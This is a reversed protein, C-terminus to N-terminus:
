SQRTALGALERLQNVAYPAFLTGGAVFYPWIEAVKDKIAAGTFLAYVIYYGVGLFVISIVLSGIFAITRSSSSTTQVAPTNTKADIVPKGDQDTVVAEESLAVALSWTSGPASLAKSIGWLVTVMVLSVASIAWLGLTTGAPATERFALYLPVGVLVALLAFGLIGRM